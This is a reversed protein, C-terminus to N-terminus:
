NSASSSALSHSPEPIAERSVVDALMARSGFYLVFALALSLAPIILMAQQLGIARFAETVNASGALVANGLDTM